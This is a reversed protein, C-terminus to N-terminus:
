YQGSWPAGMQLQGSFYGYLLLCVITVALCIRLTLLYVMAKSDNSFKFLTYLAGSLSLLMLVILIIILIKLWM